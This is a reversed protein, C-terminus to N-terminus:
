GKRTRINDRIYMLYADNPNPQPLPTPAYPYGPYNRAFWQDVLAGQAEMGFDGWPPGAPAVNYVSEGLEKNFQAVIGRCVTGPLFSSNAIQWAHTLEHVLLQGRVTYPPNPDAYVSADGYPPGGLSVYILGDAGPTTFRRGNLNLNTIRVRDLPITNQFVLTALAIENPNLKRTAVLADTAAGAAVGEVAALLLGAGTNMVIFGALVGITQGPGLSPLLSGIVSAAGIVAGVALGGAAVYTDLVFKEVDVLVGAVGAAGYDKAASLTGNQFAPWNAAIRPDSGPNSQSADPSGKGVTGAVSGGFSDLLIIGNTSAFAARVSFDYGIAGSDHMHYDFQYSGDSRVTCTVSGGLATGDPTTIVAPKTTVSQPLFIPGSMWAIAGHEFSSIRGPKGSPDTWPGEDSVPTRKRFTRCSLTPISRQIEFWTRWARKKGDRM